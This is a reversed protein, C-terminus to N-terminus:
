ETGWNISFKGEPNIIFEESYQEELRKKRRILAKEIASHSSSALKRYVTMVFGVVRGHDGKLASAGYGAKLYQQLNQDFEVEDDNIDVRVSNTDKGNFILNGQHDIVESKQNRFVVESLIEPNVSLTLIEDKLDPRLLELLAQFKDQMGQHPTATLLLISDTFHRLQAALRYRETSTLRAGWQRRSLRHAEDFIILDWNGAQSLLELNEQQKLRDMSGIVFPYLRWDDPYDINFDIGFIRFDKFGFKHRMEEKWQRVLGAPVVILVKRLNGRQSLASLLMGVEITKGLGVDDAIMWNLNGSRLIHHVLHIQHPLPDIDLNSLTGTNENWSELARALSRLRIREADSDSRQRGSLFRQRVGPVPKLREHPMWHVKGTEPYEVLVQMRDGFQQLDRVEGIGLSVQTPLSPVHQVEMGPKLGSKLEAVPRWSLLRSELLKIQTTVSHPQISIQQVLAPQEDPTVVLCGKTHLFSSYNLSRSM